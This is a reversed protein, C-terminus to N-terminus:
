AVDRRGGGYWAVNLCQRPRTAAVVEQPNPLKRGKQRPRGKAKKGVVPPAAEYLNADADFHSLYTLRERYRAALGAREQTAYNGDASFVFSRDPLWRLWFLPWQGLLRAPTQHRRGGSRHDDESRYLAVLIPWAWPRRTFPFRVLVALVVWQHGWRLATDTHTSR